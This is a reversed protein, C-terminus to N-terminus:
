KLDPPFLEEASDVPLGTLIEAALIILRRAVFSSNNTFHVSVKAGQHEVNIEDVQKDGNELHGLIPPASIRHEPSRTPTAQVPSSLTSILCRPRCLASYFCMCETLGLCKVQDSIHFATWM